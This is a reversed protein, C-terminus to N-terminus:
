PGVVTVTEPKPFVWQLNERYFRDVDKGDSKFMLRLTLPMIGTGNRDTAEILAISKDDTRNFLGELREDMSWQSPPATAINGLALNRLAERLDDKAIYDLAEDIMALPREAGEPRRQELESKMTLAHLTFLAALRPKHEEILADPMESVWANAKNWIDDLGNLIM